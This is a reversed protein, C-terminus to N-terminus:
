LSSCYDALAELVVEHDTKGLRVWSYSAKDCLELHYYIVGASPITIDMAPYWIDGDTVIWLKRPRHVNWICQVLFYPKISPDATEDIYVQGDEISVMHFVVAKRINTDAGNFESSFYKDTVM